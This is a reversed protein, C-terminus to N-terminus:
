ILMIIKGIDEEAITYIVELYPRDSLASNHTSAVDFFESTGKSSAGVIPTNAQDRQMVISLGLQGGLNDWFHNEGEHILDFM